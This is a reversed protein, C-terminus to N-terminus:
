KKLISTKVAPIDAYRMCAQLQGLPNFTSTLVRPFPPELHKPAVSHTGPVSNLDEILVVVAILQHAM